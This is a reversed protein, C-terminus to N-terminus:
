HGTPSRVSPGAATAITWCVGWGNSHFRTLTWRSVPHPPPRWTLVTGLALMYAGRHPYVDGKPNGTTGSTYHLSLADWEDGPLAYDFDPDGTALFAEYDM